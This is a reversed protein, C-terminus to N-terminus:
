SNSGHLAEMSATLATVIEACQTASLLIANDQVVQARKELQDALRGCEEALLSYDRKWHPSTM